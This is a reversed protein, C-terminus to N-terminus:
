INEKNDLCNREIDIIEELEEIRANLCKNQINKLDIESATNVPLLFLCLSCIIIFIGLIYSGSQFFNIGMISFVLVAFALILMGIINIIKKM